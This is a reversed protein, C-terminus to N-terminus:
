KLCNCSARLQGLVPGVAFQNPDNANGRSVLPGGGTMCKVLVNSFM